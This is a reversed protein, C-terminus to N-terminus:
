DQMALNFAEFFPAVLYSWMTTTRGEVWLAVPMDATLELGMAAGYDADWDFEAVGEYALTEGTEDAVARPSVSRIEFAVRPMSRQPFGPFVLQGKMGPRIQDIMASPISFLVQPRDLPTSLSMLTAGQPAFMGDAEFAVAVVVGDVPSLVRSRLIQDDLGAIRRDLDEIRFRNDRAQMLLDERLSLLGIASMELTRRRESRLRHLEAREGALESSVILAQEELTEGSSASVIGKEKLQANRELRKSMSALQQEFYGVKQELAEIQQGLSEAAQKQLGAQQFLRRFRLAYEANGGARLLQDIDPDEVLLADIAVNQSIVQDRERVLSDRQQRLLRDDLQLLEQGRTVQAHREVLVSRVLGGYPHQLELAPSSSVIKGSVQLSTSIPALVAWAVVLALFGAVAAAGLWLPRAINKPLSWSVDTM